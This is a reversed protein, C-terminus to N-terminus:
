GDFDPHNVIATRVNGWIGIGNSTSPRSRLSTRMETRRALDISWTGPLCMVGPCHSIYYLHIQQNVYTIVYM